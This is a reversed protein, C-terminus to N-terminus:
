ELIRDILGIVQQCDIELLQQKLQSEDEIQNRVKIFDTEAKVNMNYMMGSYNHLLLSAM